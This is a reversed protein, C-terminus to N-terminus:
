IHTRSHPKKYFELKQYQREGPHIGILLPNNSISQHQIFYLVKLHKEYNVLEKWGKLITEATHVEM